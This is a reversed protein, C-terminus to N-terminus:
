KFISFARAQKLAERRRRKIDAKRAKKMAKKHKKVDLKRGGTTKDPKM